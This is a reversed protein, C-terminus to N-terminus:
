STSPARAVPTRLNTTLISPNGALRRFKRDGLFYSKSSSVQRSLYLGFITIAVFYGLLVTYDIWNM